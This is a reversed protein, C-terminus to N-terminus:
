RPSSSDWSFLGGRQGLLRQYIVVSSLTILLLIASIASGFPWNLLVTTQEYATAALVRVWVGGLLTPTVFAGMTLIFTLVYGVAVGPLYHSARKSSGLCCPAAQITAHGADVHESVTRGGARLRRLVPPTFPV